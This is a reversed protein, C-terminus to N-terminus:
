RPMRRPIEVVQQFTPRNQFPFPPISIAAATTWRDQDHCAPDANKACDGHGYLQAPTVALASKLSARLASRCRARSGHGCYTRSWRANKAPRRGFMDRLDKSVYQWWGDAFDPANPDGGGAGYGQQLMGEIRAYSTAGLVPKFEADLLKPWWADMIEIAADDDDKGDKNMDRRHGGSARWARLTAIAKKLAPDSPHGLARELVPVVAFPRIDQTAAEDMATVLQQLAM